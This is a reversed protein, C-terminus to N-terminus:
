SQSNKGDASISVTSNKGEANDADTCSAFPDSLSALYENISLTRLPPHPPMRVQFIYREEEGQVALIGKYRFLDEPLHEVMTFLFNNVQM